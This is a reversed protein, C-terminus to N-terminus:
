QTGAVCDNENKNGIDTLERMLPKDRQCMIKWGFSIILNACDRCQFVEMDNCKFKFADM